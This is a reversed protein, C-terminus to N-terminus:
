RNSVVLQDVYYMFLSSLLQKRPIHYDRISGMADIFNMFRMEGIEENTIEPVPISGSAFEAVYYVHRYEIGNTGIFREVIPEISDIVRIDRETYGTEEKFERIACEQETENRNRRGKPFGWEGIQHEAKVHTVIYELNDVPTNKLTRYHTRSNTRDKQIYPVNARQGWFGNWLFDFGDDMEISRKIVDIESQMMQRFLYMIQDTKHPKYRGRIFEVYGVSHKRSIMLFMLNNSADCAVGRDNDTSIKARSRTPDNPNSEDLVSQLNVRDYHPPRVFGEHSVLIVGWSTIPETCEKYVHTRSNCNTCTRDRKQYLVQPQCKYYTTM